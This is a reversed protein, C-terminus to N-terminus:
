RETRTRLARRAFERESEYTLQAAAQAPDLWEPRFLAEEPGTPQPTGRHPDTLQMLFYREDRENRKGRFEFSSHCTGLDAIIELAGYGSEEEVERLAAQEATEGPDIHGKPLRVEHVMRGEREIDRVLVLMRGAQDVVVGGATEHHKTKM